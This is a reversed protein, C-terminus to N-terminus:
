VPFSKRAALFYCSATSLWVVAKQSNCISSPLLLSRFDRCGMPWFVAEGHNINFLWYFFMCSKEIWKYIYVTLVTDAVSHISNVSM